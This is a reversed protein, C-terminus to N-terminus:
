EADGRGLYAEIVKPDQSIEQPLGRAIIEGHDLVVIHDSINMVLGMNHEILLITVGSERIRRILAILMRTEEPNLGAAPEDLLLLKPKNALAIAIELLRQKGYPLSSAIADRSDWLGVFELVEQARARIAAEERRYRKTILLADAITSKQLSHAAILINEFVPLDFFVATIQFTRGIGLYTITDARKDLLETGNFKVSGRTAPFSGSIMNFTTTKGAGNPGILSVIQGQELDFSVDSVAALGGFFKSLNRVELLAM